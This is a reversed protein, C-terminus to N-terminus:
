ITALVTHYFESQHNVVASIPHTELKLKCKEFYNSAIVLDLTSRYTNNNSKRFYKPQKKENLVLFKHEELINKLRKGNLNDSGDLEQLKSNM